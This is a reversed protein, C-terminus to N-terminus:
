RPDGLLIEVRQVEGLKRPLPFTLRERWDKRTADYIPTNM